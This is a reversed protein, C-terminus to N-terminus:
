RFMTPRCAAIQPRMSIITTTLPVEPSGGIECAALEAGGKRRDIQDIEADVRMEGARHSWEFGEVAEIL